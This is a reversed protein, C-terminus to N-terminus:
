NVRFKKHLVQRDTRIGYFYIGSNYKSSDFRIIHGGEEFDKAIIEELLNWNEDLIEFRVFKKSPLTFYFEVEGSVSELDLDYLIAYEETKIRNRSLYQLLKRYFIIGLLVFLSIFLFSILSESQM